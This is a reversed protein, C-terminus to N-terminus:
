GSHVTARGRAPGREALEESREIGPREFAVDQVLSPRLPGAAIADLQRAFATPSLTFPLAGPRQFGSTGADSTVEHYGLSAVRLGALRATVVSRQADGITPALM